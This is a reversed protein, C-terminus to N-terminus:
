SIELDIEGTAAYLRDMLAEFAVRSQGIQSESIKQMGVLVCGETDSATNGAHIRVGSFFPVDLIHPMLRNFRTSQDIVVKYNGAPIATEGPIKGKGDPGLDRVVDELTFMAFHGDIYLSGLTATDTSKGRVVSLRM